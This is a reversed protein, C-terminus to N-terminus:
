EDDSGAEEEEDDDAAATPEYDRGAAASAEEEEAGEQGEGFQPRRSGRGGGASPLGAAASASAASPQQLQQQAPYALAMQAGLIRAVISGMHDVGSVDVPTLLGGSAEVASTAVAEAAAATEASSNAGASAAAAAAAPRATPWQEGVLLRLSTPRGSASTMQAFAPQLELCNAFLAARGFVYLGLRARSLAVTLRRVDRLHGVARTRVLSLLVYDAQQGQFKDVTEVRAPEGFVGYGACRRKLVDKLLAKQGNYTTLIAIRNAPYGCLRMYQYVAVM